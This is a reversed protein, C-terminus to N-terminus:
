HFNPSQAFYVTFFLTVLFVVGYIGLAFLSGIFLMNGLKALPHRRREIKRREASRREPGAVMLFYYRSSFTPISLRVNIPHDSWKLKACAERLAELHRESFIARENEPLSNVIAAIQGDDTTSVLTKNTADLPM